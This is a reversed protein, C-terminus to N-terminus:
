RKTLKANFKEGCGWKCILEANNELDFLGLAIDSDDLDFELLEGCEPCILPKFTEKEAIRYKIRKGMLDLCIIHLDKLTKLTNKVTRQTMDCNKSIEYISYSKLPKNSIFTYVTLLIDHNTRKTM